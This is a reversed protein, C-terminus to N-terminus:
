KKLSMLPSDLICLHKLFIGLSQGISDLKSQMDPLRDSYASKKKFHLVLVQLDFILPVECMKNFSFDGNVTGDVEM